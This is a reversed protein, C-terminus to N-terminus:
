APALAINYEVELSAKPDGKRPKFEIVLDHKAAFVSDDSLYDTAGDFVQTTIPLYGEATVMFHIHAPRFPHRHLLELLKGAPGDNPVPYPTPRLCYFAYEGRENTLFKGRLNHERQAPDQQEYLGNTSAEWVDVLANSIPKGTKADRVVGSMYAIQGDEPTDFVITSGFERIPTDTRWFPGLIASSTVDKHEAAATKYTIEDALSELGLVDTLLLVENRKDNTMQGAQSIFKLGTMFEETTLNVERMFNHSHRILASVIEKLRPDTDKGISNIVNDTFGLDYEVKPTAGNTTM